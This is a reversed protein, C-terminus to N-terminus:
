VTVEPLQWTKIEPLARNLDKSQFVQILAVAQNVLATVSQLVLDMTHNGTSGLSVTAKSLAELVALKGSQFTAETLGKALNLAVILQENSDHIVTAVKQRMKIAEPSGVVGYVGGDYLSRNTNAAANLSRAAKNLSDHLKHLDNPGCATQSTVLVSAGATVGVTLAAQQSLPITAPFSLALSLTIGLSTERM